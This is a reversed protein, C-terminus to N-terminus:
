KMIEFQKKKLIKLQKIRFSVDKTKGTNFFQRQEQVINKIKSLDM